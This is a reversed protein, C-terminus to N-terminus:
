ATPTPSCAWSGAAAPRPYNSWCWSTPCTAPPRRPSRSGPERGRTSAAWRISPSAFAPRLFPLGPLDPAAVLDVDCVHPVTAVAAQRRASRGLATHRPRRPLPRDPGDVAPHRPHQARQAGALQRRHFRVWRSRLEFWNDDLKTYRIVADYRGHSSTPSLQTGPCGQAPEPVDASAILQGIRDPLFDALVADNDAAAVAKGHAEVTAVLDAPLTDTM